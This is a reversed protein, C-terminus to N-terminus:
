IIKFKTGAPVALLAAEYIEFDNEDIFNAFGTYLFNRFTLSFPSSILIKKRPM